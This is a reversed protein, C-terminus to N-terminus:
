KIVCNKREYIAKDLEKYTIPVTGIKGIVVGAAINALIIAKEIELGSALGLAITSIVTDGAGTVDYVQVEEAPFSNWTGDTRFIAIGKAGRTVVLSKAGSNSLYKKGAAKFTIEDTITIGAAQELELNNPKVLDAGKFAEIEKSKSDIIVLTHTENCMQIIKKIFRVENFIGKRYDSLIIADMSSIHSKIYTLIDKQMSTSICDKVETDVRLLQQGKTAYRTKKSTPRADQFIGDVNIEKDKLYKRLWIGANDMAAVGCIYTDAGLMKVNHAVNSAGGAELTSKKFELIPIPAEPSIRNVKGTVYEDVILDGLVMIKKNRFDEITSIVEDYVEM